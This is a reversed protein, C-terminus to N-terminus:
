LTYDIRGGIIERNPHRTVQWSFTQKEGDDNCTVDILIRPALELLSLGRESHAEKAIFVIFNTDRYKRSIAGICEVIVDDDVRQIALDSPTWWLWWHPKKLKKSVEKQQIELSVMFSQTLFPNFRFISKKGEIRHRLRSEVTRTDQTADICVVSGWLDFEVPKSHILVVNSEVLSELVKYLVEYDAQTPFEIICLGSKAFWKELPLKSIM